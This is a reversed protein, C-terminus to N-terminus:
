CEGPTKSQELSKGRYLDNINLTAYSPRPAASTTPEKSKSAIIAASTAAAADGKESTGSGATNM